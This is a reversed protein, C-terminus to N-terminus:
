RVFYLAVGLAIAGVGAIIFKVGALYRGIFYRNKESILKKDMESDHQTDTRIVNSLRLTGYIICGIGAVIIVIPM